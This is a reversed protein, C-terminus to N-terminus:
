PQLFTKKWVDNSLKFHTRKNLRYKHGSWFEFEYPIFEYGGWYKPRKKLDAEKIANFYNQRVLDFSSIPKSQQSSIALANKEKSRNSFYKDSLKGSIKKIHGKMRVQVSIKNWYILASIQDHNKFEDSKKSNYNSFFIFKNKKVYKLNVYRSNVEKSKKCYSSISIADISEQNKIIAQDHSKKLIKYPIEKSIDEFIIM